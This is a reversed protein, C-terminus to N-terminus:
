PTVEFPLSQLVTGSPDLVEVRWPGKEHSQIVKSSYTRWNAANVPLSVRARETEGFYWVHTVQTPSHAGTVRTFCFLKEVSVPFSTGPEVPARDVVTKCIAAQAIALVPPEQSAAPAVTMVAVLCSAVLCAFLDLKM